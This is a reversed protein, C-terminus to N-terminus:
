KKSLNETSVLVEKGDIHTTWPIGTNDQLIRPWKIRVLRLAITFGDLVTVRRICTCFHSPEDRFAMSDLLETTPRRQRLQHQM